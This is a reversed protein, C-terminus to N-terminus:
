LVSQRCRELAYRLQRISLHAREATSFPVPLQYENDNPPASSQHLPCIPLIQPELFSRRRTRLRLVTLWWYRPQVFPFSSPQSHQSALPASRPALCSESPVGAAQEPARTASQPPLSHAAKITNQPQM